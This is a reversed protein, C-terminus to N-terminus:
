KLLTEVARRAARVSEQCFSLADDGNDDFHFSIWKEVKVSIGQTHAPMQTRPDIPVGMVSVGSGFTVGQGWTVSGGGASAVNVRRDESRKQPALGTHKRNALDRMRSFIVNKPDAFPQLSRLKADLMPALMALQSAKWQGLSSRYSKEDKATPFYGGRKPLETLYQKIEHEFFVTMTQDLINSCKELVEHTLNRAEDSVKKAELDHHYAQELESVLMNARTLMSEILDIQETKPNM